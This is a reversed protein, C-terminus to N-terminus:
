RPADTYGPPPVPVDETGDKSAPSAADERDVRYNHKMAERQKRVTKVHERHRRLEGLAKAYRQAPHLRLARRLAREAARFHERVDDMTEPDFRRAIGLDYYVRARRRAPLERVEEAEIARELMERGEHWDGQEIVRIARRVSKAEVELLHVRVDVTREDVMRTVRGGLEDVVRRRLRQYSGGEKQAEVDVRQLMSATPGDYVTITLTGKVSPVDYMYSRHRTYCGLPGCVTEPRTTWESRTREELELELLMVVTARPIEGAERMPELEGLDIRRVERRDPGQELHRAVVRRLKLEHELRGSAVWIRPFARVPVSAPYVVEGRVERTTGCGSAGMLVLGISALFGGLPVERSLRGRRM